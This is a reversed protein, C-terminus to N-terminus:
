RRPASIEEVDPEGELTSREVYVLLDGYRDDM